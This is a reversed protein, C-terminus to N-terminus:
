LHEEEPYLHIVPFPLRVANREKNERIEQTINTSFLTQYFLPLFILM